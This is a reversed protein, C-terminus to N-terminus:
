DETLGSLYTRFNTQLNRWRTENRALAFVTIKDQDVAQTYSYVLDRYAEHWFEDMTTKFFSSSRLLDAAPIKKVELYEQLLKLAFYRLRRVWMKKRDRKILNAIKDLISWFALVALVADEFTSGPWFDGLEGSIGFAEEYHGGDASYAWLSKPDATATTPEYFWTYRIRALDDLRLVDVNSLRKGSRKRLYQIRKEISGRPRLELFKKEIWLQIPDNSRFDSSKFINQTNNFKIVNANFGRETKVSEGETIRILVEVDSSLNPVQRLSGITQAGNIVQFNEANMLSTTENFEFVTCIVSVGNNYYFFNM